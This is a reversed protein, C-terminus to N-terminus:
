KVGTHAGEAIPCDTDRLDTYNVSLWRVTPFNGWIALGSSQFRKEQISTRGEPPIVLLLDLKM